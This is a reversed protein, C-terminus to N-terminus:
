KIILTDTSCCSLLQEYTEKTVNICGKTIKRQKPDKSLIRKERHEQPRGLWVRHIAYVETDDEKFQLIDGGYLPDDVLRQQLTFTGRPTDAGILANRCTMSSGPQATFCVSALLVNVIVTM